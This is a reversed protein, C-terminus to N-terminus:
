ESGPVVSFNETRILDVVDKIAKLTEVTWGAGKIEDFRAQTETSTDIANILVSLAELDELIEKTSDTPLMVYASTNNPIIDWANAITAVKTSGNYATIRRVQDDGLGSRIFVTQDVYANDQSSALTNLTISTSTAAQVLGENVHERGPNAYIIYESTDDPIVKWNRDVVAKRSSGIYELILRTQGKGTGDIIAIGAPDYNGDVAPESSNLMITNLTSGTQATKQSLVISSIDRLRKGASLNVNHTVGTLVEDWVNNGFDYAIYYEISATAVGDVTAEFLVRYLNGTTFLTKDVLVGYNGTKSNIKAMNFPSGTIQTSSFVADNGNEEYISVTPTGTPDFKTGDSKTSQFEFPIYDPLLDLYLKEFKL